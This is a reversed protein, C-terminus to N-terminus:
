KDGSLVEEMKAEVNKHRECLVYDEERLQLMEWERAIHPEHCPLFRSGYYITIVPYDHPRICKPCNHHYELWEKKMELNQEKVIDLLPYATCFDPPIGFDPPIIRFRSLLINETHLPAPEESLESDLGELDPERDHSINFNKTKGNAESNEM